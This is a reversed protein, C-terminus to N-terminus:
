TGSGESVSALMNADRALRWRGHEKKLISLTPGARVIPLAGGPPTAVVRLKTWMFAWDGLVKIEQIESTGEFKPAGPKGQSKMAAAFDSKTMMSPPGSILFVADETMLSLVKEVDGTKSAAMWTAILARIEQEDSLM